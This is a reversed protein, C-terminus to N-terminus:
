RARALILREMHSERGVFPALFSSGRSKDAHVEVQVAGLRRLVEAGNPRDKARLRLLDACLGDLDAPVGDLLQSPPPPDYKQKEMLVRLFDGGFPVSGTLAEFLMVGVSYWDSAESLEGAAAQEPSMYEATGVVQDAVTALGHRSLETALGFDLLVVRGASTVLM